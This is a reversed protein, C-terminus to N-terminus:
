VEPSDPEELYWYDPRDIVGAREMLDLLDDSRTYLRARDLDDWVMLLWIESPDSKSRFVRSGSSGNARYIASEGDFVRKWADYDAV